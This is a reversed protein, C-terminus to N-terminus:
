EDLRSGSKSRAWTSRSRTGFTSRHSSNWRSPEVLRWARAWDGHLHDGLVALAARNVAEKPNAVHDIATPAGTGDADVYFKALVPGASSRAIRYRPRLAVVPILSGATM